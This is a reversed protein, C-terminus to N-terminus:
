PTIRRVRSNGSDAVYVHGLADVAVGRPIYFEASNSPGDAWSGVGNGALTTVHGSTDVRRIRNDSIDSVYLNGQTDIALGYPAQFEATGRVGGTGDVWGQSGNGAFTTVQGVADIKRIRSNELDAIYLNDQRDVVIGKPFYFKATSVPGDEFGFADSGALTTVNGSADIRRIRHYDTVYVNGHTDVALGGIISFAATGNSGGTGDTSMYTYTGNGAVTTVNRAMDIKRIRGGDRFYINGQRDIAIAGLESFEATGNLGGTGDAYGQTDNGAFTTVNGSPDIRRIRNNGSDTTYVDGQPDVAVGEIGFFEATGFPGGTGDEFPQHNSALVTVDGMADVKCIWSKWPYGSGIVYVGGQPAIAVGWPFPDATISSLIGSSVLTTVNGRADVKCVANHDTVYVVHYSDVAVSAPAAVSATGTRGGTGDISNWDGNGALTTVNGTVDIRRIRNNGYDAVYVAGQADVAVGMPQNFRATGNPGGSGDVFQTGDDVSGTKGTGAITTVNGVTDIRRIRNNGVDAVYVNGRADVAVGSPYNFEATGNPGGSGDVWGMTGNGAVTTVNGSPDIKRIRHNQADAVYLNDQSDLAIGAPLNFEASGNPGGTGDSWAGTGNGAITTMSGSPDIKRIRNVRTDSAYVNGQSDIAVAYLANFQATGIPGDVYGGNGALTIVTGPTDAIGGDM